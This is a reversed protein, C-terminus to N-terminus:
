KVPNVVFTQDPAYVSRSGYIRIMERKTGPKKAYVAHAGVDNPVLMFQMAQLSVGIATKAFLQRYWELAQKASAALDTDEIHQSVETTPHLRLRAGNAYIVPKAHSLVEQDGFAQSVFSPVKTVFLPKELLALYEHAKEPFLEFAVKRVSEANSYLTPQFGDHRVGGFALTDTYRTVLGAGDQHFGFDLMSGSSLKDQQDDKRKVVSVYQEALGLDHVGPVRVPQEARLELLAKCLLAAAIQNSGKLGQEVNVLENDEYRCEELGQVVVLHNAKLDALQAASLQDKLVDAIAKASSEFTSTQQKLSNLQDFLCNQIACNTQETLVIRRLMAPDAYMGLEINIGSVQKALLSKTTDTTSKLTAM